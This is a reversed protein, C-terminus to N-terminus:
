SLARPKVRENLLLVMCFTWFKSTILEKFVMYQMVPAWVNMWRQSLTGSGRPVASPGRLIRESQDAAGLALLRWLQKHLANRKWCSYSSPGFLCSKLCGGEGDVTADDM